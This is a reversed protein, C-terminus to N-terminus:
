SSIADSDHEKILEPKGIWNSVRFPKQFIIREAKQEAHVFFKLEGKIQVGYINRAEYEINFFHQSGTAILDNFFDTALTGKFNNEDNPITFFKNIQYTDEGVFSINVCQHKAQYNTFEYAKEPMKVENEPYQPYVAVRRFVISNLGRAQECLFEFRFFLGHSCTEMFEADSINDLDKKNKLYKVCDISDACMTMSKNNLYPEAFDIKKLSIYPATRIILDQDRNKIEEERFLKTQEEDRKRHNESQFYVLLGIITASFISLCSTVLAIWEDKELDFKFIGALVIGVVLPAALIAVFGRNHKKKMTLIDKWFILIGDNGSCCKWIDNAHLCAYNLM